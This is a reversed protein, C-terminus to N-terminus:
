RSRAVGGNIVMEVEESQFVICWLSWVTRSPSFYNNIISGGSTIVLTGHHTKPHLCSSRSQEWTIKKELWLHDLDPTKKFANSCHHHTHTPPDTNNWSIHWHGNQTCCCEGGWKLFLPICKLSAAYSTHKHTHKSFHNPSPPPSTVCCLFHTQSQSFHPPCPLCGQCEAIILVRQCSPVFVSKGHGHKCYRMIASLAAAVGLGPSLARSDHPPHENKLHLTLSFM